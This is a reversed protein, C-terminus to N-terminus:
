CASEFYGRPNGIKSKGSRIMARSRDSYEESRALIWPAMRAALNRAVKDTRNHSAVRMALNNTHGIYFRGNPNELVYVWFMYNSDGLM